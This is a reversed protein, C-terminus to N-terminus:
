ECGQVVRSARGRRARVLAQKGHQAVTQACADLGLRVGPEVPRRAATESSVVVSLAASHSLVLRRHAVDAADGAALIGTGKGHIM